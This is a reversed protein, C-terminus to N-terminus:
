LIACFIAWLCGFMLACCPEFHLKNHINCLVHYSHRKTNKSISFISYIFVLFPTLILAWTLNILLSIIMLLIISLLMGAYINHMQTGCIYLMYNVKNKLFDRM